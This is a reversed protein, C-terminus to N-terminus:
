GGVGGKQGQREGTSPRNYKLYYNLVYSTFFSFFVIM